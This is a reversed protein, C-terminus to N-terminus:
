MNLYFYFFVPFSVFSETDPDKVKNAIFKYGTFCDVMETIKMKYKGKVDDSDIECKNVICHFWFSYFSNLAIFQFNNMQLYNESLQKMDVM